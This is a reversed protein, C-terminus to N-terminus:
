RNRPHPVVEISLARARTAPPVPGTDPHPFDGILDGAGDLFASLDHLVGEGDVFTFRGNGFGYTERLTATNEPGAGPAVPHCRDCNQPVRSVTHHHFPNWGFGRRGDASTRVRREFRANGLEDRYSMSISMSSCLPTLKGRQNVGLAFFDLSYDDRKVSIAGRTTEGTTQNTQAATDDVTIHCGFCTQRWSTHCAYCELRDTHSFGREDVGMAERMAHNVGSSLLRHIQPVELEGNGSHLSLLVRGGADRRLRRMPFGKSNRFLGDAPDAAAEARVTGHCDECRVGVQYRESAYLNGDGHVDGGIHCDACHMGAAFHVDPPTEDRDNAGDEDAFYYDRDHAHLPVGLTVGNQPTKEPAFGGERIGRFALGIRGGQFHCHACQETPIATTLQHRVPHPPFDRDTMPDASRSLGDDDYVM